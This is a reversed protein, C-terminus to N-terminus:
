PRQRKATTGIARSPVLRQTTCGESSMPGVQDLLDGTTLRRPQLPGAPANM